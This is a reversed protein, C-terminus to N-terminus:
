FIYSAVHSVKIVENWVRCVLRLGLLSSPDTHSMIKLLIECPIEVRRKISLNHLDQSPM